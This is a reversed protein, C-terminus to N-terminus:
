THSSQKKVITVPKEIKPLNSFFDSAVGFVAAMVDNPMLSLANVIGLDNRPEPVSSNFVVLVVLEEDDSGNEFYHFFGQPIFVIDGKGAEFTYHEQQLGQIAWKVKGSVVYNMEWTSLHWHPERIGGPEFRFFYAAANQGALVPWNDENGGRLNGGDFTNPTLAALHFLYPCSSDVGNVVKSDTSAITM